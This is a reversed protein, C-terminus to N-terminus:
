APRSAQCALEPVILTERHRLDHSLLELNLRLEVAVSFMANVLRVLDNPRLFQHLHDQQQRLLEQM